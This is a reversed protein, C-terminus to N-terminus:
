AIKHLTETMQHLFDAMKDLCNLEQEMTANRRRSGRLRGGPRKIVGNKLQQQARECTAANHGTDYL